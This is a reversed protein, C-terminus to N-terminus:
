RGITKAILTVQQGSGRRIPSYSGFTLGVHNKATGRTHSFSLAPMSALSAPSSPACFSSAAPM